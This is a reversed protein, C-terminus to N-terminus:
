ERVVGLDDHDDVRHRFALVGAVDQRAKQFDLLLHRRQFDRGDVEAHDRICITSFIPTDDIQCHGDFFEMITSMNSKGKVSTQEELLM